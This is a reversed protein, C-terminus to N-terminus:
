FVFYVILNNYTGPDVGEGMVWNLGLETFNVLANKNHLDLNVKARDQWRLTSFFIELKKARKNVLLFDYCRWM